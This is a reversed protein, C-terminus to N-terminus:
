VRVDKIEPMQCRPLIKSQIIDKRYEEIKFFEKIILYFVFDKIIGSSVGKKKFFTIIENVTHVRGIEFNENIEQALKYYM